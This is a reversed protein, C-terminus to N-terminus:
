KYIVTYLIGTFLGRMTKFEYTKNEAINYYTEMSVNVSHHTLDLPHKLHLIFSESQVTTFYDGKSDVIYQKPEVRYVASEVIFVENNVRAFMVDCITMIVICGFLFWLLKM